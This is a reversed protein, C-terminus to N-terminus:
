RGERGQAVGERVVKLRIPPGLVLIANNSEIRGSTWIPQDAAQAAPEARLWFEAENEKEAINIGNLGSNVVVVGPPLNVVQFPVREEFGPARRIRIAVRKEEGPQLTLVETDLSIAVDPRPMLAVINLNKKWDVQRVTERGGIMARGVIQLPLVASGAPLSAEPSASLALVTTEQGPEVFGPPASLGKPLGAIEVRIRGEFGDRREVAIMIPVTGGRPVNVGKMPRGGRFRPSRGEMLMFDPQPPRLTLRYARDRGALRQVDRLSVYYDGDAPPVFELRSDRGRMGGGDDNRWYLDVVPLGNPPFRSGAPHIQVKYAAADLAHATPTTGLAARRRGMFQEFHHDEDPQEPMRALRIVEEDILIYDGVGLGKVPEMRINPTSSDHSRFVVSSKLVARLTARPVLKGDADLVELVSDLRSGLRDAQVELIIMEGERAHFRFLDEDAVRAGEQDFGEIRGNVTVPARVRTASKLGTGKEKETLEQYEGVALRVANLSRGKETEAWVPFTDWLGADAPPEVRITEAGKLNYGELRITTPKGKPVGLPFVGTIYPFEGANIRYPFGDGGRREYDSIRLTYDGDATIAAGLVIDENAGSGSEAVRKGEADVLELVPELSSGVRAAVVAFVLEQGARGRFRFEDVDGAESLTGVFTAPLEAWSGIGSMGDSSSEQVEKWAGVAFPVEPTTGLPTVIRFGHVGVPADVGIKLEVTAEFPPAEFVDAASSGPRPAEKKPPPLPRVSLIRGEMGPNSVVVGVAEGLNRGRVTFTVTAGQMGGRPSFYTIDPPVTPGAAWVGPGLGLGFGLGCLILTLTGLCTRLPKMKM